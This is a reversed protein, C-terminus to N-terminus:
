FFRRFSNKDLTYVRVRSLFQKTPETLSDTVFHIFEECTKKLQSDVDRKSDVFNEQVQPTGQLALIKKNTSKHPFFDSKPDLPCFFIAM